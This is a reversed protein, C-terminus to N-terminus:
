TGLGAGGQYADWEADTMTDEPRIFDEEGEEDEEDEEPLDPREPLTAMASEIFEDFNEGPYDLSFYRQGSKPGNMVGVSWEELPLKKLVTQFFLANGFRVATGGETLEYVEARLAKTSGFDKTEIEELRYPYVAWVQPGELEKAGVNDGSVGGKNYTAMM